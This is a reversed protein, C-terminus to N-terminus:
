MSLTRHVHAKFWTVRRTRLRSRVRAHSVLGCYTHGAAALCVETSWQITHLGIALWQGARCICPGGSQCMSPGSPGWFPRASAVRLQRLFRLELAPLATAMLGWSAYQNEIILLLTGSAKTAMTHFHMSACTQRKVSCKFSDVTRSAHTTRVTQRRILTRRSRYRKQNTAEACARRSDRTVSVASAPQSSYRPSRM